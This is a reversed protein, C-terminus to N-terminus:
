SRRVARALADRLAGADKWRRRPERALCRDIVRGLTPSVHPAWSCLSPVDLAVRQALLALGGGRFPLRGALAYFGVLGLSYIDSRHDADSDGAAQEPAMFEPTGFRRVVEARSQDSTLLTAIGFDTLFPRGDETRILINSPKIDRHIVGHRHLHALADALPVLVRGVLGSDLRRGAGLRSELAEGRVYQMVLAVAERDCRFEFCQVIHPHPFREAILAERRFRERNELSTALVPDLFKLAVERRGSRDWALWVQGMGGRGLPRIVEYQGGLVRAVREALLREEDTREFTKRIADTM